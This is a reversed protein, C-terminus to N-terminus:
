RSPPTINQHNQIQAFQIGSHLNRYNVPATRRLGYGSPHSTTTDDSNGSTMDPADDPATEDGINELCKLNGGREENREREENQDREENEYFEDDINVGGDELHSNNGGDFTHSEGGEVDHSEYNHEEVIRGNFNEPTPPGERDQDDPEIRNEVQLNLKMPPRDRTVEKGEHSTENLSSILPITVESEMM